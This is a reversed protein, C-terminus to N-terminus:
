HRPEDNLLSSITDLIGIKHDPFPGDSTLVSIDRILIIKDFKVVWSTTYTSSFATGKPILFRHPNYQLQLCHDILAQQNRSTYTDLFSKTFDHQLWMISDITTIIHHCARFSKSVHSKISANINSTNLFQRKFQM